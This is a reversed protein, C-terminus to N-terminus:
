LKFRQIKGTQTKPLASIFEIQRPYKYPAIKSKTFDQLEKVLGASPVVTDHLVVFAKVLQGRAEDPIGRVGCENVAPHQLLADEVEPAGINYGSSVIMSDGRSIYWYNGDDDRRCIDGTVNWGEFVYKEQYEGNLYRCGTPGQIALWGVGAGKIPLRDDDLLQAKYAPIPKGLSGPVIDEEKASIFIHILESTGIGNILKLNTKDLWAEFTAQPLHEGGSVCRRLSSLQYQEINNLIMKYATPAAACITAKFRGIAEAMDHPTTNGLLVTSAGISLPFIAQMGLGFTFALPPSGIFIDDPHPRLIQKSFTIEMSLIDQHFHVCGKPEGTTGSTFAIIAVDTAATKVADFVKPKDSIKEQLDSIVQSNGGFYYIHKLINTEEHAIELEDKLCIDCLAHTIKAKKLIPILDQSRLMPMTTVAIAGVKIVAFWCAMLFPNNAARLLVRNGSIIKMDDVLMHCIQNMTDYLKQYDWIEEDTILAIRSGNGQEIQRDLIKAAVNLKDPYCLEPLDFLFQPQASEAPLHEAVFKDSHASYKRISNKIM